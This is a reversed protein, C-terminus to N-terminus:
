LRYASLMGGTWSTPVTVELQCRSPTTRDPGATLLEPILVGNAIEQQQRFEEGSNGRVNQVGQNSGRTHRRAHSQASAGTTISTSSSSSHVTLGASGCLQRLPQLLAFSRMLIHITCRAGRRGYVKMTIAMRMAMMPPGEMTMVGVSIKGQMLIGIISTM